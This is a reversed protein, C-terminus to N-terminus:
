LGGDITTGGCKVFAHDPWANPVGNEDITLKFVSHFLFDDHPNRGKVKITEVLMSTVGHKAYLLDTSEQKGQYTMGSPFGLGRTSSNTQTRVYFSGADNATISFVVHSEGTLAVVDGNCAPGEYTTPMVFTVASLQPSNEPATVEAPSDTCGIVLPILTAIVPLSKM